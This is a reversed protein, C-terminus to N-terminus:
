MVTKEPPDSSQMFASLDEEEEEEEVDGDDDDDDPMLWLEHLRQLTERNQRTIKVYPDEM